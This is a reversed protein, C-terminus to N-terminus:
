LFFNALFLNICGNYKPIEFKVFCIKILFISLFGFLFIDFFYIM